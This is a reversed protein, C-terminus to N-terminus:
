RSHSPFTVNIGSYGRTNGGTKKPTAYPSTAVELKPYFESESVAATGVELCYERYMQMVYTRPITNGPDPEIYLDIFSQASDNMLKYAKLADECQVPSSYNNDAADVRKLGQIAKVVLGALELHLRPELTGDLDSDVLSKKNFPVILLRSYYGPTTDKSVPLENASFVMTASSKFSFANKNKFEGRITDEGTLQKFKSTQKMASSPLDGCSNVVKAFLDATAFPRVDLDQLPVHARMHEPIIADILRLFTGKGNRGSGSLIPAKQPGLRSYLCVGVIEELLPVIEEDVVERIWKDITPCEADPDWALPIQFVSYYKPDHPKLELTRWDLMGNTLNILHEPGVGEIKPPESLLFRILNSVHEQKAQEGALKLWRQSVEDEGGPKWYGSDYYWLRHDTGSAIPGLAKVAELATVTNLRGGHTLIGKTQVDVILQEMPTTDTGHSDSRWSDVVAQLAAPVQYPFDPNMAGNEFGGGYERLVSEVKSAKSPFESGYSKEAAFLLAERSPAYSLQGGAVLQGVRFAARNLENNRGDKLEAITACINRLASKGYATEAHIAKRLQDWRMVWDEDGLSSTTRYGAGASASRGKRILDLLWEPAEALEMEWPAHGPMWEYEVGSQHASGPAVVFGNHKIDIGPYGLKNLNGIFQDDPNSKFYYHTGRILRRRGDWDVIQYQGTMVAVTEPIEGLSASDIRAWSEHGDARPDVDVVFFGSPRAFLGINLPSASDFWSDLKASTAGECEVDWKARTPHKGATKLDEGRLGCACLGDSNLGHVPLVAWGKDAYFGVRQRLTARGWDTFSQITSDKSHELAVPEAEFVIQDSGETSDGSMGPAEKNQQIM